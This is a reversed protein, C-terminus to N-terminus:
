QENGTSVSIGVDSSPSQTAPKEEPPEEETKPAEAGAEVEVEPVEPMETDIPEGSIMKVANSVLKVLEAPNAKNNFILNVYSQGLEQRVREIIKYSLEKNSETDFFAKMVDEYGATLAVEDLRHLSERVKRRLEDKPTITM